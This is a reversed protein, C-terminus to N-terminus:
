ICEEYVGGIKFPEKPKLAEEMARKSEREIAADVSRRAESDIKHKKRAHRLNFLRDQKVWFPDNCLQQIKDKILCDNCKFTGDMMSAVGNYKMEGCTNCRDQFHRITNPKIKEFWREAEEQIPNKRLHFDEDIWNVIKYEETM